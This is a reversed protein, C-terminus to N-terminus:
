LARVVLAIRNKVLLVNIREKKIMETNLALKTIIGLYCILLVFQANGKDAMIFYVIFRWFSRPTCEVATVILM